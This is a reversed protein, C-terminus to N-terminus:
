WTFDFANNAENSEAIKTGYDAYLEIKDGAKVNPWIRVDVWYGSGAQLGRIGQTGAGGSTANEVKVNCIWSPATGQNKVFFRFSDAGTKQAQTIVLDPKAPAPAKKQLLPAPIPTPDVTQPQVRTQAAAGQATAVALVAAAAISFAFTRSPM